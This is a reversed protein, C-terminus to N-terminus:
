TKDKAGPHASSLDELQHEAQTMRLRMWSEFHHFIDQLADAEGNDILPGLAHVWDDAIQAATATSMQSIESSLNLKILQLCEDQSVDAGDFMHDSFSQIENLVALDAERASISDQEPATEVHTRYIMKPM